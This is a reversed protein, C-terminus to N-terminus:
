LFAKNRLARRLDRLSEFKTEGVQFYLHQGEDADAISPSAKVAEIYVGYEVALKTAAAEWGKWIPNNSTIYISYPIKM